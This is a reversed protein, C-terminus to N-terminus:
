PASPEPVGSAIRVAFSISYCVFIVVAATLGDARGGAVGSAVIAGALLWIRGFPEFLLVRLRKEPAVRRALRRDLLQIARQTIWGAAGILYGLWPAGLALSPAACVVVVVVDIWRILVMPRPHRIAQAGV